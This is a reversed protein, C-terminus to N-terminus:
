RTRWREQLLAALVVTTNPEGRIAVLLDLSRTADRVMAVVNEKSFEALLDHDAQHRIEQLSVFTRAVFVLELRIPPMIAAATAPNIGATGQMFARCTRKMDAHAFTRAILPRLNRPEAHALTMTAEAVLAHFLAYYAASIARRLSAQRPHRPERNALHRAQELLDNHLAM